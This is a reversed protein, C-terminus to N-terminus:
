LVIRLFHAIRELAEKLTAASLTGRCLFEFTGRRLPRAFLGFGEDDLTENILRYLAAYRAVPIRATPDSLTSNAIGAHELLAAADIQFRSLASVIGTVFGIAVSSAPYAPRQPM